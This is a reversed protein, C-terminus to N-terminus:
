GSKRQKAGPLLITELKAAAAEDQGPLRHGYTGLTISVHAHGVRLQVNRANEGSALLLTISTHRLDHFRITPCEAAKLIPWLSQRRVNSAWRDREL